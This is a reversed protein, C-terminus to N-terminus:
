VRVAEDDDRLEMRNRQYKGKRFRAERLDLLMLLFSFGRERNEGVILVVRGLQILTLEAEDVVLDQLGRARDLELRVKVVFRVQEPGALEDIRPQENIDPMVAQGHGCRDHLLTRFPGVGIDDVGVAGHCDARDFDRLNGVTLREDIGAERGVFLDYDVSLVLQLGARM